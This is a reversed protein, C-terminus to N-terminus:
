TCAPVYRGAALACASMQNLARCSPIVRSATPSTMRVAAFGALSLAAAYQRFFDAVYLYAILFGVGSVLAFEATRVLGAFVRPSMQSRTGIEAVQAVVPGAYASSRAGASRGRAAPASLGAHRSTARRAAVHGEETVRAVKATQPM